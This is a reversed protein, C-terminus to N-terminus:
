KWVSDLGRPGTVSIQLGYTAEPNKWSDFVYNVTVNEAFSTMSWGQRGQITPSIFLSVDSVEFGPKLGSINFQDAGKDGEVGGRGVLVTLGYGGPSDVGCYWFIWDKAVKCHDIDPDGFIIKSKANPISALLYTQRAAYFKFGPFQTQHGNGSVLVLNINDRDLEGALDSQVRAVISKDNWFSIEFPINGHAFGGYLHISGQTDGFNCGEFTFLNNDPDTTFVLGVGRKLNNISFILADPAAKTCLLTNEVALPPLMPSNSAGTRTSMATNSASPSGMAKSTQGDGARPNVAMIRARAADAGQKQQKLQALIKLDLGKPSLEARHKTTFLVPKGMSPRRMAPSSTGAGSTASVAGPASGGKGSQLQVVGHNVASPQPAQTSSAKMGNVMGRLPVTIVWNGQPGPGTLNMIASKPGTIQTTQSKPAFVIDVQMQVNPAMSWQYPGNQGEQYHIRSRVGSVGAPQPQAPLNKSGGQLPGMERFEAVRFPGPPLSLSVNGASNTLLTFTRTVSSGDAVSGFDLQEPSHQPTNLIAASTSSAPVSAAPVPTAAAGANPRDGRKQPGQGLGTMAIWLFTGIAVSQLAPNKM